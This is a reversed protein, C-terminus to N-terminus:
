SEGSAARRRPAIQFFWLCSLGVLSIPILVLAHLIAAFAVATSEAGQAGVTGLTPLWILLTAKTAWEFPGVGGATSPATILLNAAAAVLLYAAFPLGLNFAQGVM